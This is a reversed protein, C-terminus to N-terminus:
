QPQLLLFKIVVPAPYGRFRSSSGENDDEFFASNSDVKSFHVTERGAKRRNVRTM